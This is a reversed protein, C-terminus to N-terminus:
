KVILYVVEVVAGVIFVSMLLVSIWKPLVFCKRRTCVTRRLKEFVLIVIIANIAGFVAGTFSIVSIFERVGVLFLIIPVSITILWALMPRVKFDFILSDKVQIGVIVFISVLTIIGLLSGVSSVVPGLAQGLGIIAEESTAAGTVGVVALSFLAFVAIIVSMSTIVISRLKHEHKEGLLDHIEPIIGMGAMSFLVVGYALSIKGPAFDLLNAFQIEPLGMFIIAGFLLLLLIVVYTETGSIKRLGALLFLSEIIMFAVSYIFPTGGMMPGLLTFLFEGAVIIYAMMAGWSVGFLTIAVIIKWRKGLYKEALGTLRRHGPTQITIEAYLLQLMVLLVGVIVLLGLGAFFGVQAFAYPLGFIGIGIIGGIMTGVSRLWLKNVKTM